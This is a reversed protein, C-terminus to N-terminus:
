LIGDARLLFGLTQARSRCEVTAFAARALIEKLALEESSPDLVEVVALSAVAHPDADDELAPDFRVTAVAKRLRGVAPEPTLTLDDSQAAGRLLDLVSEDQLAPSETLDVVLLAIQAAVALRVRNDRIPADFFPDHPDSATTREELFAEAFPLPE